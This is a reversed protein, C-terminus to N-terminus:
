NHEPFGSASDTKPLHSRPFASNHRLPTTKVLTLGARHLLDQYESETRERHLGADHTWAPADSGATRQPIVGEIHIVNGVSATGGAICSLSNLAATTQYSLRDAHPRFVKKGGRACLCMPLHGAL